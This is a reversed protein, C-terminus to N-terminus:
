VDGYLFEVLDPNDVFVQHLGRGLARAIDENERAGDPPGYAAMVAHIVEHLISQKQRDVPVADSYIIRQQVHSTQGFLQEESMSLNDVELSFTLGAIRINM